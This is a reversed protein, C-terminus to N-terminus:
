DCFRFEVSSFAGYSDVELVTSLIVNAVVADESHRFQSGQMGHESEELFDIMFNQTAEFEIPLKSRWALIFRANGSETHNVM